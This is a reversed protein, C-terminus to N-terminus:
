CLSTSQAELRRHKAARDFVRIGDTQDILQQLGMALPGDAVLSEPAGGIDTFRVEIHTYRPLIVEHGPLSLSGEESLRMTDSRATMRPNAMSLRIDEGLANPLDVVILRLPVGIQVAALGQGGAEEMVFFMEDALDALFGDFECVPDSAESLIPHDFPLIQDINTM